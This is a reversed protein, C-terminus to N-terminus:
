FNYGAIKKYLRFNKIYTKLIPLDKKDKLFSNIMLSIGPKFVNDFKKKFQINNVNITNKNQIKIEELPSLIIRRKKTYLNIEWRGASSWNSHYSFLIKKITIGSGVFSTKNFHKDVHSSHTFLKKPNGILFFVLDILHLSNYFFWKQTLYKEFNLKKIKDIWETFSFNASLIGGDSLAIKKIIKINEYFRRNYAIYVKCKKSMSLKNIQNLERLNKAGPKELLINKINKKILIKTVKLINKENVAVIAYRFSKKKIKFNELGGYIIKIKNKKTKYFDINNKKNGVVTISFKKKIFYNIYNQAMYGAGIILVSKM